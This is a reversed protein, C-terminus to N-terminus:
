KGIQAEVGEVVAHLILMHLEQIRDSTEGPVVIELDCLGKMRGGGRGLLACTKIGMEKGTACARVCNESNGSTSLVILVDGAVGLARVWRAFVEEFGYDNAVCTIHGADACAIAALPRRDKRFRGTLEEAFHAADCLSGGNGCILVKRGGHLAGAVLEVLAGVRAASAADASFAALVRGAEGFARSLLEKTDM